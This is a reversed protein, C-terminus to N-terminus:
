FVMADFDLEATSKLHLDPELSTVDVNIGIAYMGAAKIAEIGAQADEVGICNEPDVGLSRACDLFIDPAPKSRTVRTADAVYDFKDKADLCELVLPANKSVSAVATRIGAGRACEIFEAIGPLMDSPTLTKVLSVYLDNKKTILATKEEDTFRDNAGNVELIIEFSRMRSVGKLRENIKEDFYLGLGDSLQKWALFHFKATDVIVGDLDFIIAKTKM